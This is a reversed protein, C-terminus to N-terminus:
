HFNFEWVQPTRYGPRIEGSVVVPQHHWEVIPATARSIESGAWRTWQDLKPDYVLVDKPFGPHQSKPEFNVSEGDDGSVILLHGRAWVAPSPAAVAARPLESLKKWGIHPTFCYADTLYRRIPKGDAGARLEAGSFLYFADGDTGAVALMRGPGPWPDLEHWGKQSSALDFSWFTKLTDTADPTQIGGALYVTSGVLAGCGNAMPQPLEPLTTTEIKSDVWRLLFVDRFNKEANGGGACIVGNSTTISVGYGMPRPLKFGTLWQAEPKPLVFISDYWIKKGGEWPLGRPFNAGGAAILAGGSAGAFAGAFGSSDPLPPLQKRNLFEVASATKTQTMSTTQNPGDELWSLSFRAFVIKEYPRSDGCEYLCGVSGEPLMTLCSYAAPGAHLQRSAPWTAGEDYSLRVTMKERKLSAPNSFLLRSKQGEGPWTCRLLSAQCVPEILTEDSQVSSWTAGGDESSAIARRNKGHNSRMNHLLSGDVREAITSENTFRDEVGGIHWTAGHDDSYIIQSCTTINGDAAMETHNAPIVLRGKYKGRTLQIGNVPGTAYWRWSSRKVQTTIERPRTWTLGDDQSSTIFVRRSGQSTGANIKKEGESGLNWTMLLWITGTDRDIVPAPNGCTNEGDSWIIQQSNWTKGADTSRKLLLNIEGTDSGSLKRGECFALVTANTTVVVAPIRYTHYGDTGSVFVDTTLPEARAMAVFGTIAVVFIFFQIRRNM